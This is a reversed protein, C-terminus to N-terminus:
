YGGNMSVKRNLHKALFENNSDTPAGNYDPNGKLFGNQGDHMANDMNSKIHAAEHFISGSLEKPSGEYMRDFYVECIKNNLDTLGLLNGNAEAVSVDGGKKAIVSKSVSRVMYVIVDTEGLSPTVDDNILKADASDFDKSKEAMKPLYTNLWTIAKEASERSGGKHKVYLTFTAM